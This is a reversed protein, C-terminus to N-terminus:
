GSRLASAWMSASWSSSVEVSFLTAKERWDYLSETVVYLVARWDKGATMTAGINPWTFSAAKRSNSSEAWILCAGSILM